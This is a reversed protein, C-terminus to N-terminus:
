QDLVVSRNLSRPHDPDLGLDAARTVCLRHVRVLEAMPDIDRHELHAGTAAVDAAFDPVLPGLAWVARGPAAISIPGHRYETALYSEAWSQCSERLKLGAEEALAGAFGMGVFTIQEAWRVAALSEAPDEALVARAQEVVPGLDEGLHSRLIALTTTAFRTQVVSEEDVEDILIPDGLELVPTGPSSCIVTRPIHSPIARMASVVETTTGSRCIVLYRDYDRGRVQSAPWADTLGHGADERLAAIARSMFLSTGCGIVAVREGPQPLLARHEAAIAAARAWDDPQTAVEAALHSAPAHDAPPVLVSDRQHDNMDFIQAFCDREIM